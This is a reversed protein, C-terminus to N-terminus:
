NTRQPSILLSSLLLGSVIAVAILAMMFATELGGIFDQHIIANLSKFGISGPVLIIIGPVLMISAPRAKIRAFSNGAIGVFLAGFFAGLEPGSLHVGLQTGIYALSCAFLVLFVDQIRARFLVVLGLGAVLLALLETWYPLSGITAVVDQAPFLPAALQTGIVVGFGMQFFVAMVFVMRSAGAVLNLTSLETMAVTFTLGPLLIVVSAVLCVYNSLPTILTGAAAILFAATMTSAIPLLQIRNGISLFITLLGIVLGVASSVIIENIGGLFIRAVAGSTLSFCLIVLLSSYPSPLKEVEKLRIEGESPSIDGNLVNEAIEDVRYQKGLNIDGVPERIVYTHHENERYVTVIIGSPLAMCQLGFGLRVAVNELGSELRHAPIGYKLMAKGLRLIFNVSGKGKSFSPFDNLNFSQSQIQPQSPQEPM